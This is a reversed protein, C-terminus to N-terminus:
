IDGLLFFVVIVLILDCSVLATNTKEDGFIKVPCLDCRM